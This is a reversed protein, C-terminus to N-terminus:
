LRMKKLRDMERKDDNQKLTERKDHYKKGRAIHFELKALGKDNIFLRTPILTLSTSKIKKDIKNIEKRSLLLKRIRKPDHNAYTGHSYESIHMKIFVEKKNPKGPMPLLVCYAENISAKGSRISKIETGYLQIGAIFKDLLEYDHRAKKNKINVFNAM